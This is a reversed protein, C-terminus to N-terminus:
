GKGCGRVPQGLFCTERFGKDSHGASGPVSVAMPYDVPGSFCASLNLSTIHYCARYDWFKLRDHTQALRFYICCSSIERKLFHHYM